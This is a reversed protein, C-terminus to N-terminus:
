REDKGRRMATGFFVLGCLNIGLIYGIKYGRGDNNPAFIAVDRGMLLTPLAVPM